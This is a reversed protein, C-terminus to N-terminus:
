RARAEREIQEVLKHALYKRMVAILDQNFQEPTKTPKVHRALLEAIEADQSAFWYAWELRFNNRNSDELANKLGQASVPRGKKDWQKSLRFACGDYGKLGNEADIYSLVFTRMASWLLDRWKYTAEVELEQEHSTDLGGIAVQKPAAVM